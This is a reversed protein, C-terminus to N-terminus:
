GPWAPHRSDPLPLGSQSLGVPPGLMSDDGTVVLHQDQDVFRVPDDSVELLAGTVLPVAHEVPSKRQKHEVRGSLKEQLATALFFPEPREIPGVTAAAVGPLAFRDVLRDPSPELLLESQNAVEPKEVLELVNRPEVIDARFVLDARNVGADGVVLRM